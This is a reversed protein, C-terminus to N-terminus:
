RERFIGPYGTSLHPCFWVTGFIQSSKFNVPPVFFIAFVRL